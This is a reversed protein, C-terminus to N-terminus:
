SDAGIDAQWRNKFSGSLKSIHGRGIESDTRFERSSASLCDMIFTTWTVHLSVRYMM